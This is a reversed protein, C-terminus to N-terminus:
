EAWDVCEGYEGVSVPGVLAATLTSGSQDMDDDDCEDDDMMVM